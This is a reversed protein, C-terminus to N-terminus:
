THSFHLIFLAHLSWSVLIAAINRGGSSLVRLLKLAEPSPLGYMNSVDNLMIGTTKWSTPLFKTLISQLLRPCKLIENCAESSHRAIRTMISLVGRVAIPSPQCVELVYRLRPLLRM